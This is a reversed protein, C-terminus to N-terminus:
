ARFMGSSPPRTRAKATAAMLVPPVWRESKPGLWVGCQRTKSHMTYENMNKMDRLESMESDHEWELPTNDWATYANIITAFYALRVQVHLGHKFSYPNM